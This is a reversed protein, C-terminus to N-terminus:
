HSRSLAQAILYSPCLHASPCPKVGLDGWTFHCLSFPLYLCPFLKSLITMLFLACTCQTTALGRCLEGEVPTLAKGALQATKLPSDWSGPPSSPTWQLWAPPSSPLCWGHRVLFISTQFGCFFSFGLAQLRMPYPSLHPSAGPVQSGPGAHTPCLLDTGEYPSYGDM